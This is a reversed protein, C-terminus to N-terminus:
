CLRQTATALVACENGAKTESRNIRSRGDAAFKITHSKDEFVIHRHRIAVIVVVVIM